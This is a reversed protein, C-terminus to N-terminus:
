STLSKKQYSRWGCRKKFHEQLVFGETILVSQVKENIYSPPAMDFRETYEELSCLCANQPVLLHPAIELPTKKIFVHASSSISRLVVLSGLGSAELQHAASMFNGKKIAIQFSTSMNRTTLRTSVPGQSLLIAIKINKMSAQVLRHKFSM